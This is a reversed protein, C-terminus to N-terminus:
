SLRSQEILSEIVKIDRNKAENLKKATISKLSKLYKKAWDNRSASFKKIDPSFQLQGQRPNYSKALSKPHLTFLDLVEISLVAGEKNLNVFIFYFEIDDRVRCIKAIKLGSKSNGARSGELHCKVDIIMLRETPKQINDYIIMDATAQQLYLPHDDNDLHKKSLDFNLIKEMSPGYNAGSILGMVNDPLLNEVEEKTFTSDKEQHNKLLNEIFYHQSFCRGPYSGTLIQRVEIEVPEGRKSGSGSLHFSPKMDGELRTKVDDVTPLAMSQPASIDLITM